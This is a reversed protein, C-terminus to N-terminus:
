RLGWLTIERGLTGPMLNGAQGKVFRPDTMQHAKRRRMSVGKVAHQHTLGQLM